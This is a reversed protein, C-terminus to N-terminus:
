DPYAGIASSDIVLDDFYVIYDGPNTETNGAVDSSGFLINDIFVASSDNDLDSIRVTGDISVTFGGTSADNDYFVEVYHWNTDYVEYYGIAVFPDAGGAGIGLRNGGFGNYLMVYCHTTTGDRMNLIVFEDNDNPLINLDTVKYYFRVYVDTYQSFAYTGYAYINTGDFDLEWGYDGNNKSATTASFTVNTSSVSDWENTEKNLGTEACLNSDNTTEACM